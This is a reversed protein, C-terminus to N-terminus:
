PLPLTSVAEELARELAPDLPYADRFARRAMATDVDEVDAFSRRYGNAAGPLYQELILAGCRVAARGSVREATVRDGGPGAAEIAVRVVPFCLERVVGYLEGDAEGGDRFGVAVVNDVPNAPDGQFIRGEYGLAPSVLIVGGDLQSAALYPQLAPQFVDDWREQFQGAREAEAAVLERSYSAYFSDWEDELADVFEGLVRRQEPDKLVYATAAAGFRATPDDVVPSGSSRAVARLAAFMAQPSTSTFYMPLFHFVEFISDRALEGRLRAGETVLASPPSGREARAAAVREAYGPDYLPLAGFGEYGIVALGHYWLDVQLARGVVWRRTIDDSEGDQAGAASPTAVVGLSAMTAGLMLLRRVPLRKLRDLVETQM